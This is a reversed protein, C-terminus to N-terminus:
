DKPVPLRWTLGARFFWTNPLTEGGGATQVRRDEANLTDFRRYLSHGVFTGLWIDSFLRMNAVLGAQVLSYAVHDICETPVAPRAQRDISGADARCPYSEAIVADRIGYSNGNVDARVGLEFRQGVSYLVHVFAPLFGEIRVQHVPKYEIYIAPLPLLTGFSYSLLGGGGVVLQDGFAKTAMLLASVRALDSSLALRDAALGPAVRMSLSWNDPLLQVLMVPLELSHFARPPEVFNSAENDFSVAEVHYNAGPILFTTEGLPIPVNLTADYSSLQTTTPKPDQLAVNPMYQVSVDVLDPLQASAATTFTCAVLGILAAAPIRLPLGRLRLQARSHAKSFAPNFRM